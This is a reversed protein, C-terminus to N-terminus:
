CPRILISKYHKMRSTHISGFRTFHSYMFHLYPITNLTFDILHYFLSFWLMCHTNLFLDGANQFHNELHTLFINQAASTRLTSNPEAISTIHDTFFTSYFQTILYNHQLYLTLQSSWSGCSHAEIDNIAVDIRVVLKV